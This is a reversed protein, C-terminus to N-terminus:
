DIFRKLVRVQDLVRRKKAASVGRPAAAGGSLAEGADRDGPEGYAERKLSSTSSTRHKSEGRRQPNHSPVGAGGQGSRLLSVAGGTSSNDSALGDLQPPPGDFLIRIKRSLHAKSRLLEQRQTEVFSIDEKLFELDGQLQWDM